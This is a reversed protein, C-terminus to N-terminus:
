DFVIEPYHPKQSFMISMQTEYNLCINWKRESYQIVSLKRTLATLIHKPRWNKLSLAYPFDVYYGINQSPFIRQAMTRVIVHDVHGGIGMPIYIRDVKRYHEMIDGLEAMLRHDQPRIQGRDKSNFDPYVFRGSHIRFGADIFDLHKFPVDLEKMARTDEDKRTAEFQRPSLRPIGIYERADRSMPGNGFGTFVSIIEIDWGYSKWMQIHDCVDLVADDLHPSFVILRSGYNRKQMNM